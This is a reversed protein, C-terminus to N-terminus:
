TRKRYKILTDRVTEARKQWSNEKKIL